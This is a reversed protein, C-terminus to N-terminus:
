TATRIATAMPEVPRATGVPPFAPTARAWYAAVWPAPAMTTIALSPGSSAARSAIAKPACTRRTFSSMASAPRMTLSRAAAVSVKLIAVSRSGYRTSPLFVISKSIQSSRPPMGSQIMNGVPPPVPMTPIHFARWSSRSRPQYSPGQGRNPTTCASPHAGRMFAHFSPASDAFGHGCGRVSAAPSRTGEVIASRSTKFAIRSVWPAATATESAAMRTAACFRATKSPILAHRSPAAVKAPKRRRYSSPTIVVSSRTIRTFVPEAAWPALKGGSAAGVTRVASSTTAYRPRVRRAEQSRGPSEGPRSPGESRGDGVQVPRRRKPGPRVRVEKRGRRARHQWLPRVSGRLGPQGNPELREPASLQSSETGQLDPSQSPQGHQGRVGEGGDGPPRRLFGPPRVIAGPVHEHLRLRLLLPGRSGSGGGEVADGTQIRREADHFRSSARWGRGYRDGTGVLLPFGSYRRKGM